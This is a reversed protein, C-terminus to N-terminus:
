SMLIGPIGWRRIYADAVSRIAYDDLPTHMITNWAKVVGLALPGGNERVMVALIEVADKIDTERRASGIRKLKRALSWKWQAAYIILNKGQWLVVGQGVSDRFLRRKIDGPTFLDMLPNIWDGILEYQKAVALIARQFKEKIKNLKRIAPDIIYDIDRTSQRHRFLTVAVFGGASLLKIPAAARLNKSKSM